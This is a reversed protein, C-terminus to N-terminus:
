SKAVYRDSSTHLALFSEGEKKKQDDLPDQVKATKKKKQGFVENLPQWDEHM